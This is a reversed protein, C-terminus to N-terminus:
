FRLPLHRGYHGIYLLGVIFIKTLHVFIIQFKFVNLTWPIINLNGYNYKISLLLSHEQGVCVVFMRKSKFNSSPFIESKQENWMVTKGEKMETSSREQHHKVRWLGHVTDATSWICFHYYLLWCENSREKATTMVRYHGTRGRPHM